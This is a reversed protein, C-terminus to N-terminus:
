PAPPAAAGAVVLAVRSGVAVVLQPATQAAALPAVQVVWSERSDRCMDEPVVTPRWREEGVCTPVDHRIGYDVLGLGTDWQPDSFTLAVARGQRRPDHDLAVVMSAISPDGRYPFSLDPARVAAIVLVVAAIALVPALVRRARVASAWDYLNTAVVAMIVPPIVDYFYAVYRLDLSDIGRLAYNLFLLTMVVSMSILAISLRRVEARRTLMTTLVALGGTTVLVLAGRKSSGPWWFTLVYHIGDRLSPRARDGHVAYHWYDPYDGPWHLVLNAVMPLLFVGLIVGSAIFTARNRRLTGRDRRDRWFVIGGVGIAVPVVFTVFSIHGHVLLGGAL